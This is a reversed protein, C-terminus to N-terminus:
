IFQIETTRCCYKTCGRCTKLSLSYVARINDLVNPLRSRTWIHHLGLFCVFLQKGGSDMIRPWTTSTTQGLSCSSTQVWPKAKMINTFRDNSFLKTWAENSWTDGKLHDSFTNDTQEMGWKLSSKVELNLSESQLSHLLKLISVLLLAGYFTGCWNKMQHIPHCFPSTHERGWWLTGSLRMHATSPRDFLGGGGSRYLLVDDPTHLPFDTIICSWRAQETSWVSRTM